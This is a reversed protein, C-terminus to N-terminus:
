ILYMVIGLIKKMGHSIGTFNSLAIGVAIASGILDGSEKIGVLGARAIDIVVFLEIADLNLLEIDIRGDVPQGGIGGVVTISLARSVVEANGVPLTSAKGFVM